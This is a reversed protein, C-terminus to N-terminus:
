ALKDKDGTNITPRSGSFETRGSVKVTVKVVALARGLEATICYFYSFGCMHVTLYPTSICLYCLNLRFYYVIPFM